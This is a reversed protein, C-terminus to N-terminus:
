WGRHNDSYDNFGSGSTYGSQYGGNSFGSDFGGGNYGGNNYGGYGGNNFGGNNFGGNNYGGGFNNNSEFGGANYPDYNSNGFMSQNQNSMGFTNTARLNKPDPGYENRGLEGARVYFCLVIIPGAFPIFGLFYSGGSRGIDHLRRFSMSMTPLFVAVNFAIVISLMIVSVRGAHILYDLWYYANYYSYANSYAGAVTYYVLLCWTVDLIINVLAVFLFFFWYEARRARGNFDAYHAFGSSIAEFFGM